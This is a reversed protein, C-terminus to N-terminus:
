IKAEVLAGFQVTELKFKEFSKQPPAWRAGEGSGEGKKRPKTSGYFYGHDVWFFEM